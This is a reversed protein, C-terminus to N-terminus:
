PNVAPLRILDISNRHIVYAEDHRRSELNDIFRYDGGESEIFDEGFCHKMFIFNIEPDNEKMFIKTNCNALIANAEDRGSLRFSHHNTCSFILQCKLARAQAPIIAIGPIIYDEYQSLIIRSNKFAKNQNQSLSLKLNAIAALVNDDLRDKPLLILIIKNSSWADSFQVSLNRVGNLDNLELPSPLDLTSTIGHNVDSFNILHVNNLRGNKSSAERIERISRASDAYSCFYILGFGDNVAELAMSRLVDDKDNSRDGFIITHCEASDKSLSITEQREISLGLTLMGPQHGSCFDTSQIANYEIWSFEMEDIASSVAPTEIKGNLDIEATWHARVGASEPWTIRRGVQDMAYWLSRDQPKMWRMLDIINLTGHSRAMQLLSTLMTLEYAHSNLVKTIEANQGNSYQELAPKICSFDTEDESTSESLTKVMTKYMNEDENIIAVFLAFAAQRPNSMESIKTFPRDLQLSLLSLSRERDITGEINILRNLEIFQLLTTAPAWKSTVSIETQKNSLQLEHWSGKGKIRAVLEQADSLRNIPLGSSKAAKLLRKAEKKCQSIFPSDKAESISKGSIASIATSVANSVINSM